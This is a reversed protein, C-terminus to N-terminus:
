VRLSDPLFKTKKTKVVIKYFLNRMFYFENTYDWKVCRMKDLIFILCLLKM